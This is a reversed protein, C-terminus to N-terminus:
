AGPFNSCRHDVDDTRMIALEARQTYESAFGLRASLVEGEFGFCRGGTARQVDVRVGRIVLALVDQTASALDHDFILASLIAGAVKRQSRAVRAM